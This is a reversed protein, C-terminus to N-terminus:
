FDFMKKNMRLPYTIFPEANKEIEFRVRPIGAGLRPDEEKAVPKCVDGGLHRRTDPHSYQDYQYPEYNNYCTTALTGADCGIGDTLCESPRGLFLSVHRTQVHRVQESGRDLDASVLLEIGFYLRSKLM